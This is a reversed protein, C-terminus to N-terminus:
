TNIKYKVTRPEAFNEVNDNVLKYSTVTNKNGKMTYLM